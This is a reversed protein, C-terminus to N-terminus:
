GNVKWLGARALSMLISDPRFYRRLERTPGTVSSPASFARTAPNSYFGVYGAGACVTAGYTEAAMLDSASCTKSQCQSFEHSADPVRRAPVFLSSRPRTPPTPAFARSTPSPPSCSNASEQAPFLSRVCTAAGLSSVTCTLACTPIQAVVFAPLAALALVAFSLM